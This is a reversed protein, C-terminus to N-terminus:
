RPCISAFSFPRSWMPAARVKCLLSLKALQESILQRYATPQEAFAIHAGPVEIVKCDTWRKWDEAALPQVVTTNASSVCAIYTTKVGKLASVPSPWTLYAIQQIYRRPSSRLAERMAKLRFQKVAVYRETADWPLMDGLFFYDTEWSWEELNKRKPGELMLSLVAGFCWELWRWQPIHPTIRAFVRNVWGFISTIGSTGEFIWAELMDKTIVRQNGLHQGDLAEVIQGVLSAGLSAGLFVIHEYETYKANRVTTIVADAIDRATADADFGNATYSIYLVDGQAFLERKMPSFFQQSDATLIGPMAVILTQKHHTGHEVLNTAIRLVVDIV